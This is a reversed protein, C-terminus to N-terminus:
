HVGDKSDYEEVNAKTDQIRENLARMRADLEEARKACDKLEERIHEPANGEFKYYIKHELSAWFDMAVTRIQIEVKTDIPGDSLYIPVSIIMHYSRYGSPKPQKLYDKIQLITVDNQNSIMEAIRYIDSVFSCIVRIGAVDSLNEEMSDITVEYGNRKLKKVISAPTKIRSKVHEIPSYNHIHIFENNLIDIKTAVEKLASNYLLMLTKWEDVEPHRATYEKIM